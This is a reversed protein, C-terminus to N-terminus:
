PGISFHVKVVPLISRKTCLAFAGSSIDLVGDTVTVSALDVHM